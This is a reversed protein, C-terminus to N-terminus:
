PSFDVFGLEGEFSSIISFLIALIPKQGIAIINQELLRFKLTSYYHMPHVRDVCLFIHYQNVVPGLLPKQAWGVM